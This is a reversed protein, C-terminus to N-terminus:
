SIYIGGQMELIEFVKKAILASFAANPHLGDALLSPPCKGLAIADTDAQTPTIGADALANTTVYKRINFYYSGFEKQMRAEMAELQAVSMGSIGTGGYVGVVVCRSVGQYQINRKLVDIYVDLDIVGGTFSENTGMWFVSAISKIAKAGNTYFPTKAYITRPSVADANRKLLWTMNGNDVKNVSLTCEIGDVYIPNVTKISEWRGTEGQYLFIVDKSNGYSTKFFGNYIYNTMSGVQVSESALAPLVFDANNIAPIAGARASIQWVGDGGIGCNLVTARKGILTQLRQAWTVNDQPDSGWTISDGWLTIINQFRNHVPTLNLSKKAVVVDVGKKVSVNMYMSGAPAILTHSYTKTTGETQTILSGAVLSGLSTGTYFGLVGVTTASGSDVAATLQGDVFVLDGENVQYRRIEYNADNNATGAYNLYLANTIVPSLVAAKNKLDTEVVSIRNSNTTIQPLQSEISDIRPELDYYEYLKVTDTPKQSVILYQADTVASIDVDVNHVYSGAVTNAALLALTAPLRNTSNLILGKSQMYAGFQTWGGNPLPPSTLTAVLRYKKGAVIPFKTQQWGAMAASYGDFQIYYDALPTVPQFDSLGKGVMSNTYKKSQTLPDYPSKTLSTAGATAKYWLGGNAVEGINVVQNVAINAIDANAEALTPYFKSAGQAFGDMTAQVEDNIEQQDKGSEDFIQSASNTTVWGTMNVNPDNTNGNITSKVIDGNTLRLRANLPYGGISTAYASDFGYGGGQTLFVLNDTIDYLVGNLDSGKPPMGNSAISQMTVPPFGVQYTASNPAAGTSEQIDTRFGEAADIAFPTKLLKPPTM